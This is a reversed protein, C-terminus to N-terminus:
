DNAALRGASTVARVPLREEDQSEATPLTFAFASGEGPISEQLWVDGDMARMIQRCIYLGLGTGRIQSARASDLRSFRRFLNGQETVPIGMGHDRVVVTIYEKLLGAAIVTPSPARPSEEDGTAGTVLHPMVLTPREDISGSILAREEVPFAGGTSLTSVECTVEIRGGHPSYKIANSVLNDLVEKLRGLDAEVYVEASIDASLDYHSGQSQQLGKYSHLVEEIVTALRVPGTHLEMRGTDLRSTQLLREAIEALEQASESAKELFEVALPEDRSGPYELLLDLFGSVGTLPTRLEHSATAIFDDKM